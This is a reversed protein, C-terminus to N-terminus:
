ASGRAVRAVVFARVALVACFASILFMEWPRGTSPNLVTAGLLSAFLLWTGWRFLVSPIWEGWVGIQGFVGATAVAQGFTVAGIAAKPSVPNREGISEQLTWTGGFGWYAHLLTM